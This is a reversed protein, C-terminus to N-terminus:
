IGDRMDLLYRKINDAFYKKHDIETIIDSKHNNCFYCAMVCNEKSYYNNTSNRREIELSKGRKTGRKSSLIGNDYLDFLISEEIECYFCKRPQEKYWHFFEAFNIFKFEPNLVKNKLYKKARFKNRIIQIYDISKKYEHQLNKVEQKPIGLLTALMSQTFADETLYAELFKEESIMSQRKYKTM